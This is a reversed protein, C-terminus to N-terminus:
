SLAENPSISLAKRIGMFSAVLSIIFVIMALQVLDHRTLLVRRPFLPFIQRGVAFAIWYGIVGLMMAQQLIMGVIVRNRAGILKLLAISHIKELTLTYLILGMVIGAIVTLLLRFLGIQKRVKEVTGRLLLDKQESNSFVSVDEWRSILRAVEEIKHDGDVNVLVASITPNPLIPIEMSPRELNDLLQPIRNGVESGTGSAKRSARDLRIAEGSLDFQIAQADPITFFGVGDGAASIMGRTIGVVTYTEKGLKVKEDLSLGLSADAIMEFHGQRITRGIELPMWECKDDPWSLGLVSVRLPREKHVRQITHFVFERTTKVGPVALLRDSVNRPLRSLEAFPGRTAFQVVWLDATVQDVLQTADNEIGRFIGGMGMVVMLLMGIGFATLAFRGRSHRIDKLALNM